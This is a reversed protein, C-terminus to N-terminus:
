PSVPGPWAVLQEPVVLPMPAPTGRGGVRGWFVGHEASVYNVGADAEPEAGRPTRQAKQVRACLHLWMRLLIGRESRAQALGQGKAPEARHTHMQNRVLQWLGLWTNPTFRTARCGQGPHTANQPKGSGRQGQQATGDVKHSQNQLHFM